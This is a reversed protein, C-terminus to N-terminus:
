MEILITVPGQNLSEIEMYAGFLGQEVHVHQSLKHVFLGYLQEAKIPHMSTTFSPRNNGKTDGYLTFQSIALISGKVTHINLNMKGNDDEFIRLNIIKEAMKSVTVETDNLHFGVYVLYGLTISGMVKQDVSVKAYSVRQVVTRM